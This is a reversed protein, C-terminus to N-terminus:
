AEKITYKGQEDRLFREKDQLNLFVTNEKIMRQKLIKEMIEEKAMPKGENKLITFIVDKVVGPIYGWERLAYLGRGVLVFRDDKILENHVTASHAKKESSNFMNDIYTAVQTFHLPKNEKKLVLFAKNKIGKPNVEIWNRIGLKGEYNKEINKSLEIYSAFINKTIKKGFKKDLEQKQAEFLEDLSFLKKETKFKNLTLEVTKKAFSVAEKNKTWFSHFNDDDQARNFGNALTLLFYVPNQHKNGGIFELLADEKKIDGFNRLASDLALFVEKQSEIKKKCQLLGEDAIQRVRERTIEYSQGIAELTEREGGKLGFRREIISQTREPLGKLLNESIKKYNINSM